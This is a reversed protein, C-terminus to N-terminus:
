EYEVMRVQANLLLPDVHQQKGEVVMVPKQYYHFIGPNLFQQRTALVEEKTPGTYAKPTYDFDPLKLQPLPEEAELSSSSSSSLTKRAEKTTAGLM